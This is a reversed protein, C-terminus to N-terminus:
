MRKSCVCVKEKIVTLLLESSDFKEWCSFCVTSSLSAKVTISHRSLLVFVLSGTRSALSCWCTKRHVLKGSSQMSCNDDMVMDVTFAIQKVTGVKYTNYAIADNRM